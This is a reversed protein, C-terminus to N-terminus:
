LLGMQILYSKILSLLRQDIARQKAHTTVEVLKPGRGMYYMRCPTYFQPILMCLFFDLRNMYDSERSNNEKELKRAMSIMKQAHAADCVFAQSEPLISKGGWDTTIVVCRVDAVCDLTLRQSQRVVQAIVQAVTHCRDRCQIQRQVLRQEFACSQSLAFM